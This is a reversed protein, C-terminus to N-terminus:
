RKTQAALSPALISRPCVVPASWERVISFLIAAAFVVFTLHKRGNPSQNMTAAVVTLRRSM